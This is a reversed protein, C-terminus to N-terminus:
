EGGKPETDGKLFAFYPALVESPKWPVKLVTSPLTDSRDKRVVATRTFSGDKKVDRGLEMLVDVEYGAEGANFKTGVPGEKWDGNKNKYRGYVTGQRGCLIVNVSNTVLKDVLQKFAADSSGYDQPQMTALSKGKRECWDLRSQRLVHTMSDIIIFSAKAKIAERIAASVDAVKRCGAIMLEQGTARKVREAHFPFANETDIAFILGELGLAKKAALAILISTHSKGAGEPGYLGVWVRGHSKAPQFMSM